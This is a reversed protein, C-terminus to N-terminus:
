GAFNVHALLLIFSSVENQLLKRSSNPTQPIPCLAYPVSAISIERRETGARWRLAYIEGM